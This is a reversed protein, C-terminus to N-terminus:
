SYLGKRGDEEDGCHSQLSMGAIFLWLRLEHMTLTLVLLTSLLCLAYFMIYIYIYIYIYDLLSLGIREDEEDDCHSQPSMNVISWWRRLEHM